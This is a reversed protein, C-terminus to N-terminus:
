HAAHSAEAAADHSPGPAQVLKESRAKLESARTSIRKALESARCNAPHRSQVLHSLDDIEASLARLDNRLLGINTSDVARDEVRGTSLPERVAALVTTRPAVCVLATSIGIAAIALLRRRAPTGWADNECAGDLLREVRQSLHSPTGLAWLAQLRPVSLSNSEAVRTLCRALALGNASHGVAWQDCLMESSKRWERRAVFNLPQIPVCSCLIRGVWLWVADGRVLHSMEHALLAYLDTADFTHLLEEPLVITWRFLGFAAPQRFSASTLLRIPRRVSGRGAIEDLMRRVFPERVVACGKLHRSFVITQYLLRAIGVCLIGIIAGAVGTLFRGIRSSPKRDPAVNITGAEVPVIDAQRAALPVAATAQEFQGDIMPGAVEERSDESIVSPSSEPKVAPPAVVSSAEETSQNAWTLEFPQSVNLVFQLPATVLGLVAALKWLREKLAESRIRGPRVILWVGGLLLTSHLLYTSALTLTIPVLTSLESSM